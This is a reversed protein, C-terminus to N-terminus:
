IDTLRNRMIKELRKSQVEQVPCELKGRAFSCWNESSERCNRKRHSNSLTEMASNRDIGFLYQLLNVVILGTRGHGGFCHIYLNRHYVELNRGLVEIFEWMKNDWLSRLDRIPCHLFRLKHPPFIMPIKLPLPNVATMRQAIINPFTKMNKITDRYDDLGYETYSEQLCVFTDIGSNVINLIDMQTMDSPTCGVLLRGPVVWHTEVLVPPEPWESVLSMSNQKNRKKYFKAITGASIHKRWNFTDYRTFTSLTLQAINIPRYLNTLKTIIQSISSIKEESLVYLLALGGPNPFKKHSLIIGLLVEIFSVVQDNGKLLQVMHITNSLCPSILTSDKYFSAEVDKMGLQKYDCRYGVDSDIAESLKHADIIEELVNQLACSKNQCVNSCANQELWTRFQSNTILLSLLLHETGVFSTNYKTALEKANLILNEFAFSNETTVRENINNDSPSGM